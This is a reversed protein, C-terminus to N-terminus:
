PLLLLFTEERKISEVSEVDDKEIEKTGARQQRVVVLVVFVVVVILVILVVVIIQEEKRTTSTKNPGRSRWGTSV